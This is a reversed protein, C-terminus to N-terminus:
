SRRHMKFRDQLAPQVYDWEYSERTDEDIIGFVKAAELFGVAREAFDAALAQSKAARIRDCRAYVELAVVDQLPLDRKIEDQTKVVDGWV